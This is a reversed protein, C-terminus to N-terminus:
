DTTYLFWLKMWYHKHAPCKEDTLYGGARALGPVTRLSMIMYEEICYDCLIVASYYRRVFFERKPDTGLWADLLENPLFVEPYKRM